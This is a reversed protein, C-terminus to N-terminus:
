SRYIAAMIDRLM